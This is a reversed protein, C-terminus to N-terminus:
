AVQEWAREIDVNGSVSSVSLDVKAGSAEGSGPEDGLPIDTSFTGMTTVDVFLSVGSPVGVSVDGSVSRVRLSGEGVSLIRVDGSVNAVRAGQHLDGLRVNGSTAKVEVEDDASGIEV